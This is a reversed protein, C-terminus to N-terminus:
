ISTGDNVSLAGVTQPKIKGKLRAIEDHIDVHSYDPGVTNTKRLVKGNSSNKIMNDDKEFETVRDPDNNYDDLVSLTSETLATIASRYAPIKSLSFSNCGHDAIFEYTFKFSIKKEAVAMDILSQNYTASSGNQNIRTPYYNEDDYSRPLMKMVYGHQEVLVWGFDLDEDTLNISNSDNLIGYCTSPIEKKNKM